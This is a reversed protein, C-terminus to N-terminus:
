DCGIMLDNYTFFNLGLENFDKEVSSKYNNVKYYPYLFSSGERIKKKPIMLIYKDAQKSKIFSLEKLLLSALKNINEPYNHIMKFRINNDIKNNDEAFLLFIKKNNFKSLEKKLKILENKSKEENEIQLNYIKINIDVTEKLDVKLYEIVKEPTDNKLDVSFIIEEVPINNIYHINCFNILPYNTINSFKYYHKDCKFGNDFSMLDFKTFYKEKFEKFINDIFYSCKKNIKQLKLEQEKRVIMDNHLQKDKSRIEDFISQNLCIKNNLIQLDNIDYILFNNFNFIIQSDKVRLYYKNYKEIAKFRPSHNVKNNDFNLNYKETGMIWIDNINALKYLEHRKLYETSIPSCQFEIVCRKNNQEFYLDPRQRTESIYSELKVNSIINKNQLSLLWNYLIMKGQIHEETELESYIIDCEKSKEKHRFYPLMIEGHCYEYPKGCDSCILRNEDSWKKLKYKDYTNDFCNIKTNGVICTLM